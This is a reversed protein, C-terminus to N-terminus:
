TTPKDFHALLMADVQELQRICWQKEAHNEYRAASLMARLLIEKQEVLARYALDFM